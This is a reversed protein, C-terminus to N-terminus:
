YPIKVGMKYTGSEILKGDRNWLKYKGNYTSEINKVLLNGVETYFIEYSEKILKCDEDYFNEIKTLCGKSYYEKSFPKKYIGNIKEEKTTKPDKYYKTIIKKVRFQSTDSFKQNEKFATKRNKTDLKKYNENELIGILEDNKNYAESYFEIGDKVKSKYIIKADPFHTITIGNFTKWNNKYFFTYRTKVLNYPSESQAFFVTNMM